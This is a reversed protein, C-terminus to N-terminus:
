TQTKKVVGSDASTITISVNPLSAGSPDMVTGLITAQQANALISFFLMCGVVFVSRSCIKLCNPRQGNDAAAHLYSKFMSSMFLVGSTTPNLHRLGQGFLICGSTALNLLWM